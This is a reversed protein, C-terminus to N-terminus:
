KETRKQKESGKKFSDPSLRRQGTGYRKGGSLAGDFLILFLSQFTEM